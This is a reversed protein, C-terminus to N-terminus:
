LYLEGTYRPLTNDFYHYLDAQFNHRLQRYVESTVAHTNLCQIINLLRLMLLDEVEPENVTVEGVVADVLHSLEPYLNIYADHTQTLKLIVGVVNEAALEGYGPIADNCPEEVTMM